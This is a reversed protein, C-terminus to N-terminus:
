TLSTVSLFERFKNRYDQASQNDTQEDKLLRHLVGNGDESNATIILYARFDTALADGQLPENGLLRYVNRRSLGAAGAVLEVAISTPVEAMKLLALCAEVQSDNEIAGSGGPRGRSRKVLEAVPPIPVSAERMASVLNLVNNAAAAREVDDGENSLALKALDELWDVTVGRVALFDDATM